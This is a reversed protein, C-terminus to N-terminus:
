FDVRQMQGFYLERNLLKSIKSITKQINLLCTDDAFHLPQSFTIINHLDNVFILFLLSGLVSGCPVGYKLIEMESNFGNIMLFKKRDSLFSSFWCNATHRIGYHSLKHLLTM